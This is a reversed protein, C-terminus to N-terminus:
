AQSLRAKMRENVARVEDEIKRRKEEEERKKKLERAAAKAAIIENIKQSEARMKAAVRDAKEKLRRNVEAADEAIKRQLEEAERKATVSAEDAGLDEDDAQKTGAAPTETAKSVATHEVDAEVAAAPVEAATAPVAGPDTEDAAKGGVSGGEAEAAAEGASQNEVRPEESAVDADAVSADLGEEADQADANRAPTTAVKDEHAAEEDASGDAIRNEALGVRDADEPAKQKEEAWPGSIHDAVMLAEDNDEDTAEEVRVAQAPLMGLLGDAAEDDEVHAAEDEAVEDASITAELDKSVKEREAAHAALAAARAQSAQSRRERVEKRAIRARQMAQVKAAAAASADDHAIAGTDLLAVGGQVDDSVQDVTAGGSLESKTAVEKPSAKQEAPTTPKAAKNCAQTAVVRSLIRAAASMKKAAKTAATAEAQKAAAEAAKKARAVELMQAMEAAKKMQWRQRKANADEKAASEAEEAAKATAARDAARAAAKAWRLHKIREQKAKAAEAAVAAAAAAEEHATLAAGAEAALGLILKEDLEQNKSAASATQLTAPDDHQGQAENPLVRWPTQPSRSRRRSNFRSPDLSLKLRWTSELRATAMQAEVSQHTWRTKVQFTPRSVHSDDDARAWTHSSPPRTRLLEGGRSSPRSRLMEGERSSPRSWLREGGRSSPRGWMAEGGRSAPRSTQGMGQVESGRGWDGDGITADKVLRARASHLRLRERSPESMPPRPSAVLAESALLPGYVRQQYAYIAFRSGPHDAWSTWDRASSADVPAPLAAPLGQLDSPPTTQGSGVAGTASPYAGLTRNHKKTGGESVGMASPYAGERSAHRSPSQSGPDAARSASRRSAYATWPVRRQGLWIGGLGTSARAAERVRDSSDGAQTLATPQRSLARQSFLSGAALNAPLPPLGPLLEPYPPLNQLAAATASNRSSGGSGHRLTSRVKRWPSGPSPPSHSRASGPSAFGSGAPGSISVPIPSAMSVGENSIPRRGDPTPPAMVKDEAIQKAFVQLLRRAARESRAAQATVYEIWEVRGVKGSRDTDITAMMKEAMEPSNRLNALEKMDLTSSDDKDALAFVREAEAKLEPPLSYSAAAIAQQVPPAPAHGTSRSQGAAFSGYSVFPARANCDAHSSM